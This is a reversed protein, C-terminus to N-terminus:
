KLINRFVEIGNLHSKEPHFQIGWINKNRVIAPFLLDYDSYAQIFKKDCEVYYSHAFYFKQNLYNFTKKDTNLYNWGMHPIKYKINKFKKVKGPILSLGHRKGEESEDFLIQMGSCIGILIKNNFNIPESFYDLMSLDNLRNLPNDFSGIGPLIYANYEDIKSKDELIHVEFGCFNLIKKLSFVNGGINIIAIKM